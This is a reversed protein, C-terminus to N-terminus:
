VVLISLNLICVFGIAVFVQAPLTFTYNNLHNQFTYMYVSEMKFAKFDKFIFIHLAPKLPCVIKFLFKM